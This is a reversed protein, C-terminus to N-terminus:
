QRLLEIKFWLYADVTFLIRTFGNICKLTTVMNLWRYLYKNMIARENYVYM